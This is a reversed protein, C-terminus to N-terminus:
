NTFQIRCSSKSAKLLNVFDLQLEIEQYDFNEKRPDSIM